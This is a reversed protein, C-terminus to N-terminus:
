SRFGVSPLRTHAVKVKVHLDNHASYGGLIKKWFETIVSAHKNAGGHSLPKSLVDFFQSLLVAQIIPYFDIPRYSTFLINVGHRNVM